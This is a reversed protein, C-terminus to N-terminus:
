SELTCRGHRWRRRLPRIQGMGSISIIPHAFRLITRAHGGQDAHTVRAFLAGDGARSAGSDCREAPTIFPFTGILSELLDLAAKAEAKTPRVPVAPFSCAPKYLLGTAADYGPTECLSNDPRLFPAGTIGTLVPLKWRGASALYAETVNCPADIPVWNKGRADFKLFRAACSLTLGLDPATVPILQWGKTKRDDSAKLQQLIPRVIQGGRQYIERDLDILAAEAENVIRPLEGKTVYIQPWPTGSMAQEGTAERRKDTSWKEWSRRVEEFLRDAYKAGIGNPYKALEDTIQEIHWGQGALHWVVSQFAESRQGEPAGDHILRDYDPTDQRGASKFDLGSPQQRPQGDYRGVLRDILEDLPPLKDCSGRELGSMTIYKRTNRFLEVGAGTNRDFTFKRQLDGGQATGIIRFGAGSVTTEEYANGGEDLLDEAWQDVRAGDVCHDLDIAGIGSGMLAFGIGDAQGRKVTSVATGHSSWTDPDDSKANRNPILSQYPPKTWKPKSKTNTRLEWRWVLWRNQKTLPLLAPPLNALDGQFTQPKSMM